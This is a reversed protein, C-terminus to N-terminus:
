IIEVGFEKKVFEMAENKTVLQNKGIKRKAIKRRKLRYGAKKLSVLVDFGRIGLKPDYKINPLDIHEKVGFGFNGQMDFNKRRLQNDKAALAVKLFETANSNRLTVKVGIPLGPRIEWKPQKVKCKTEVPKSGTIKEMIQKAKKLDDGTKGVGMNVTVKEIMVSNM